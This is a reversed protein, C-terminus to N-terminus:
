WEVAQHLSKFDSWEPCPPMRPMTRSPSVRTAVPYVSPKSPPQRKMLSSPVALRQVKSRSPFRLSEFVILMSPIDWPALTVEGWEKGWKLYDQSLDSSIWHVSSIHHRACNPRGLTRVVVLVDSNDFKVWAEINLPALLVPLAVTGILKKVKDDVPQFTAWDQSPPFYFHPEESWIIGEFHDSSSSYVQSIFSFTEAISVNYSTAVSDGANNIPVEKCDLYFNEM